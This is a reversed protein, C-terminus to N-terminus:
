QFLLDITLTFISFFDIVDEITEVNGSLDLLYHVMKTLFLQMQVLGLQMQQM